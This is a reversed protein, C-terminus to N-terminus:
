KIQGKEIAAEPFLRLMTSLLTDPKQKKQKKIFICKKGLLIKKYM